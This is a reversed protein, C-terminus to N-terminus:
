GNAVAQYVQYEETGHFGGGYHEADKHQLPNRKMTYEGEILRDGGM